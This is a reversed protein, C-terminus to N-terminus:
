PGITLADADLTRAVAWAADLRADLAAAVNATIARAVRGADPVHTAHIEILPL